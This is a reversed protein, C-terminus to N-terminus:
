IIWLFEIALHLGFGVVAGGIGIVLSWIPVLGRRASRVSQILAAFQILPALLPVWFFVLSLVGLVVTSILGSRPSQEDSLM